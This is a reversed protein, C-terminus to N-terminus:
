DEYYITRIPFPINIGNEDYKEKIKQTIESTSQKLNAMEPQTWGRLKLNVSSGGLEDVLVQPKPEEKILESEKLSEKALKKAKKINEEYGIGVVVEFRRENYATNNIVINNYLNSNPIIAKRGDYTKIQTARINIDKITGKEGDAEIQDGIKFPRTILILLGSIFNAILDQLAFAIGLGLLGLLAGLATISVGLIGLVIILLIPYIIYSLVKKSVKVDHADGGKNKISKELIRNLILIKILIGIIAILIALGITFPDITYVSGAVRLNFSISVVKM